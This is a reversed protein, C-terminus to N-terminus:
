PISKLNRHKEAGAPKNSMASGDGAASLDYQKAGLELQAIIQLPCPVQSKKLERHQHRSNLFRQSMLAILFGEPPSAKGSNKERQPLPLNSCTFWDTTTVDVGTNAITKSDTTM